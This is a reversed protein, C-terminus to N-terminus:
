ESEEKNIFSDIFSEVKEKELKLKLQKEEDISVQVETFLNRMAKSLENTSKSYTEVKFMVNIQMTKLANNTLAFDTLDVSLTIQGNTKYEISAYFERNNMLFPKTTIYINLDDAIKKWKLKNETTMNVLKEVFKTIKENESLHTYTVTM